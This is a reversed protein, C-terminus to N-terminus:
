DLRNTNPVSVGFNDIWNIVTFLGRGRVRRDTSWFHRHCLSESSWFNEYHRSWEVEVRIGKLKVTNGM